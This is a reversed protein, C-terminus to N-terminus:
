AGARRAADLIRGVVVDSSDGLFREVAFVPVRETLELTRELLAAQLHKDTSWCIVHRMLEKVADGRPLRRILTESPNKRVLVGVGALPADRNAGKKGAVGFFPSAMLTPATALASVLTIDDSMYTAKELGLALTTKGATSIGPFFMGQGECIGSSAHFMLGGFHLPLAIAVVGRLANGLVLHPADAHAEIRLELTLAAPDFLAELADPSHIRWRDHTTNKPTTSATAIRECFLKDVHVKQVGRASDAVSILAVRLVPRGHDDDTARHYYQDGYPTWEEPWGEPEVVYPGIRWRERTSPANM